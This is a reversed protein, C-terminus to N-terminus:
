PLGERRRPTAVAAIVRGPRGNGRAAVRCYYRQHSLHALAMNEYVRSGLRNPTFRVDGHRAAVETNSGIASM